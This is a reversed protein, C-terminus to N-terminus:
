TKLFDIGGKDDQGSINSPNSIVDIARRMKPDSSQFFRALIYENKKYDASVNLDDFLAIFKDTLEFLTCHPPRHKFSTSSIFYCWAISYWGCCNAMLSQIDSTTHKLLTGKPTWRKIFSKICESAPAGFPDFFQAQILGNKYKAVYLATWHTGENQKGDQSTSDELNIIYGKNFVLKTTMLEDKFGIFAIPTDMRKGLDEIQVDTLM